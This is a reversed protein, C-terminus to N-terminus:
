KVVVNYKAKLSDFYAKVQDMQIQQKLQDKMKAFPPLTSGGTKVDNLKIIHYGFQTKVPTTTYQGKQLTKVAATFAPVYNSGDSWGLDGGKDKSGPDISYKKALDAFNEGKKLDAEIMDATKQDKVLIHSVDYQKQNAAQKVMDDYKAKLQADTVPKSAQEQLIQAYIMPKIEQIKAQYAPTKDLGMSNGQLLIAQQMGISQLIEKKFQPNKMQMAAFPSSKAFQAMAQDIVKQDVPKGNVYVTDAFSTVALLSSSLLLLKVLKKM